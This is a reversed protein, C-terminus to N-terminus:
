CNMLLRSSNRAKTHTFSSHTMDYTTAILSQIGRGKPLFSVVGSQALHSLWTWSEPIGHVTARWAGQDTPNELCSYQLPNSNREGHSRRLEPISGTDGAKISRDEVMSGGPSAWSIVTRLQETRDSEKHGWPGPKETWPIRWALISPHTAM